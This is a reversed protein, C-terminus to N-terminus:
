TGENEESATVLDLGVNVELVSMSFYLSGAFLSWEVSSRKSTQRNRATSLAMTGNHCVSPASHSASRILEERDLDVESSTAAKVMITTTVAIANVPRGLTSPM